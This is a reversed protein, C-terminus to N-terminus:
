DAITEGHVYRTRTQDEAQLLYSLAKREDGAELYHHDLQAARGSGAEAAPALAELAEAARRHLYRRRAPSLGAYAVARLKDHTFDYADAGQERVIRQRWLEDLGQLLADETLGSVRALLDTTFTRGLIAATQALDRAPASLGALRRRIAAEVKPPLPLDPDRGGLAMEVVFLPNGETESYLRAAEGTSLNRGAAARALEAAAAPSLAGLEIRTLLGRRQLKQALAELPNDAALEACCTTGLVLLPASGATELLYLLWDLTDPDAWQLDDLCLLLLAAPAAGRPDANLIAQALAQFLRQRQWPETLPGPASLGPHAAALEPLLRSIESLWGPALRALRANLAPVRLLAAVPAYPLTRDTATCGVAATTQQHSHAWQILEELLRTKGIGTEGDLLAMQPHGAAARRWLSLLQTWEAQRGVLPPLPPLPLAAAEDARLVQLHIAQTEASPDVGLESRLLTACAHYVRLADARNGAALHLRMLRQTAPEHLPDQQALQQAYRIAEDYAHQGELITILRGLARLHAQHLREREAAIWDDYCTPLLEGAYLEIATELARCASPLDGAAEAAAAQAMAANFEAVDLWCADPQRWWVQTHGYQLFQESGPLATRLRHLLNRLNARAQEETTDPWFVFALQQRSIPASRHLLLYALLFQMRPQNLGPVPENDFTLQFRGLLHIKFSSSTVM